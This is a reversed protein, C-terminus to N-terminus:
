EDSYIYVGGVTSQNYYSTLGIYYTFTGTGSPTYYFYGNDLTAVRIYHSDYMHIYSDELGVNLGQNNEVDALKITYTKGGTLEVKYVQVLTTSDVSVINYDAANTSDSIGPTITITNAPDYSTQVIFSFSEGSINDTVTVTSQPFIDKNYGNGQVIGLSEINLTSGNMNTYFTNNTTLDKKLEKTEKKQKEIVKDKKKIADDKKQM